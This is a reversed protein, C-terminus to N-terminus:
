GEKQTNLQNMRLALLEFGQLFNERIEPPISSLAANFYKDNETNIIKCTEIGFETLSIEIIRRNSDPILRKVFGGKVLGNITRSVTSKDLQLAGALEQLQCKILKSIELMAHCQVVTLGCCSNSNNQIALEREFDRLAERFRRVIKLNM